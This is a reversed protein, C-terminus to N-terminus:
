TTKDTKCKEMKSKAMKIKIIKSKTMKSKKPNLWRHNPRRPNSWRPNPWSPNPWRSNSWKINPWGCQTPYQVEEMPPSMDLHGPGLYVHVDAAWHALSPHTALAHLCGPGTDLNSFRPISPLLIRLDHQFITNFVIMTAHSFFFHIFQFHGIYVRICYLQSHCECDM